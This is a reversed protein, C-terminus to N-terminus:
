APPRKQCWVPRAPHHLLHSLWPGPGGGGWATHCPGQGGMRCDGGQKFSPILISCFPGLSISCVCRRVGRMNLVSLGCCRRVNDVPLRDRDGQWSPIASPSAPPDMLLGTERCGWLQGEQWFCFVGEWVEHYFCSLEPHVPSPAPQATAM